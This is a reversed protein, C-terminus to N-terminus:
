DKTKPLLRAPLIRPSFPRLNRKNEDNEIKISVIEKQELNKKLKFRQIISKRLEAGRGQM